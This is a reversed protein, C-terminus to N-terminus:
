RSARQLVARANSYFAASKDGIEILTLAEHAALMEAPGVPLGARRLLRAFNILNASLSGAQETM